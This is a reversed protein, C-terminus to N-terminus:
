GRNESRLMYVIGISLWISPTAHVVGFDSTPVYQRGATGAYTVKPGCSRAVRTAALGCFGVMGRRDRGTRPALESATEQGYRIRHNDLLTEMKDSGQAMLFWVPVVDPTHMQAGQQPGRLLTTVETSQIKERLSPSRVM